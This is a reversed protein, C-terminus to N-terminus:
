KIVDESELKVGNSYITGVNKLFEVFSKDNVIFTTRNESSITISDRIVGYNIFDPLPFEYSLWKKEEMDIDKFNVDGNQIKKYDLKTLYLNATTVVVPLYIFHKFQLFNVKNSIGEIYKPIKNELAYSGHAAQRIAKYIKDDQNRNITTLKDNTEISQNCYNFDGILRYGLDPFTLQRTLYKREYMLNNDIIDSFIFLPKKDLSENLFIWNKINSNAKKCEIILFLLTKEEIGKVGRVAVIDISGHAGLIPGNSSPHTYPFESVAKFIWSGHDQDCNRITDLCWKQFPYGTENLLKVAKEKEM